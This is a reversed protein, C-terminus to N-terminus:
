LKSELKAIVTILNRFSNTQDTMATKLDTLHIHSQEKAAITLEVLRHVDSVIEALKKNNFDIDKALLALDKSIQGNGNLVKKGNGNKAKIGDYILKAVISLTSSVLGTLLIIILLTMTLEM